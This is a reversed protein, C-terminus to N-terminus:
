AKGILAEKGRFAFGYKKIREPLIGEAELVAAYRRDEIQELARKVTDELSHEKKPNFLKFEILIANDAKEKPKLMVDYRGDGSERNSTIVYRNSLEVILGLVFAHYFNEALRNGPGRGGTDFFSITLNLVAAFYGNMHEVDDALLAKIFDNYSHSDKHFWGSVINRFMLRVEGNTLSIAYFWEGTEADYRKENVKLYGSALLLSWVANDNMCLDLYNQESVERKAKQERESFECFPRASVERKVKWNASALSSEAQEDLKKEVTGGDMLTRLDSKLEISGEGVLSSVLGNSSTNVWYAAFRKEGLFNIISWPNYINTSSGFTFGDYWRKVEQKKDSLGYEELARFVEEETFGFVTEYKNSTSTVVKLNNLDSFISEKSIRTIGTLIGRELYPNTKFASGFLGRIFSVMEDWYGNLWAEQMPTDYEDLLILVKKKYYKYLYKSLRKLSMKATAADMDPEIQNYYRIESDSFSGSDLIYSYDMCLDFLIMCITKYVEQFNDGKVDAFSLFLVPYTGQLGRYEEENWIKLGEFLDARGEYQQSFFQATMSMTLTKGFRRPRTILTVDDNSEWWEKIFHTKDIYFLNREILRSFDQTGIAVTKAM